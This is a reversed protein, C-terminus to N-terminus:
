KVKVKNTDTSNSDLMKVEALKELKVLDDEVWLSDFLTCLEKGMMKVFDRVMEFHDIDVDLLSITTAYRESINLSNVEEETYNNLLVDELTIVRSNCFSIFDTTIEEGILARLMMPNNTQYLMKSAMEWKRPDANPHVGDYTSRLVEGRRYAIFSCIMPHIHNEKAWKLWDKTSTKIYVHAFRSFVTETMPNAALSDEVENGAGVIRVNDPLKWKGDVIRDLIVNNVKGQVSPTANTFEEFFLIHNKVPEKECISVLEDYWAPPLNMMRGTKESYVSKGVFSDLTANEMHLTLCNPDIQKVRASKGEASAGHLFVPINAEIAGRLIDEESVSQFQFQYRNRYKEMDNMKQQFIEEEEKSVEKIVSPEIEKIFYENLYNYMITDKFSETYEKKSTFPIGSTLVKKSILQNNKHDVIWKIPKVEIWLSNCFEYTNGNTLPVQNLRKSFGVYIYKKGLYSYEDHKDRKEYYKTIGFIYGMMYSKGTKELKDFNQTLLEETFNDVSDQPFEGYEIEDQDQFSSFEGKLVPRVGGNKKNPLISSVNGYSDIYSANNYNKDQILWYGYNTNNSYTSSCGKCIAFDTAVCKGQEKYISEIKNSSYIDKKTLLSVEKIEM